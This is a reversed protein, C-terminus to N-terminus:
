LGRLAYGWLYIMKFFFKSIRLLRLGQFKGALYITVSWLQVVYIIHICIWRFKIPVALLESRSSQTQDWWHRRVLSNHRVATWLVPPTRAPLLIGLTLQWVYVAISCDIVMFCLIKTASFMPLNNNIINYCFFMAPNAALM